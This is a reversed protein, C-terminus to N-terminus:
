DLLGAVRGRAAPGARKPRALAAGIGSRRWAAVRLSRRYGAEPHLRREERWEGRWEGSEEGSWSWEGDGGEGELGRGNTMLIAM